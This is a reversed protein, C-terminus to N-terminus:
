KKILDDLKNLKELNNLEDFGGIHKKNIFIQPVTMLGNTEKIMKEKLSNNLSVNVEKYKLKKRELLNKASNCFTCNNSTYVIINYEKNM